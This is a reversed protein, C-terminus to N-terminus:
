LFRKLISGIYALNLLTINADLLSEFSGSCGFHRLVHLYLEFDESSSTKNRSKLLKSLLSPSMCKNM